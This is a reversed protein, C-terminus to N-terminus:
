CVILSIFIFLFLSYPLLGSPPADDLPELNFPNLAIINDELGNEEVKSFRKSININSDGGDASSSVATSDVSRCDLINSDYIIISFLLRNWSKLCAYIMKTWLGFGTRHHHIKMKNLNRQEKWYFMVMKKLAVLQSQRRYLATFSEM